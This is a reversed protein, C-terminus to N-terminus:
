NPAEPPAGEYLLRWFFQVLLGMFLTKRVVAGVWVGKAEAGRVEVSVAAVFNVTM